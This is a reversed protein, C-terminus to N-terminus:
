KKGRTDSGSVTDSDEIGPGTVTTLPEATVAFFIPDAWSQTAPELDLTAVLKEPHPNPLRPNSTLLQRSLGIFRYDDGIVWGIPTPEDHDTFGPVERQTRIPLVATTGDRYHLRVLAYDRVGEVPTDAWANLLVHFAAIPVQPVRIGIAHLFDGSGSKRLEIGARMDYDVNEVRAIGFMMGMLGPTTSSTMVSLYDGPRNYHATLDLLLPSAAPDRAPIPRGLVIRATPPAPRQEVPPPPGPDTRRLRERESSTPLQLVRQSGVAPNLLEAQERLEKPSHIDAGIRWLSRPPEALLSGGDAAFTLRTPSAYNPTTTTQPPGIPEFTATDYLQTTHGFVHAFLRGDHSLAFVASTEEHPQVPSAKEAVGGPDFIDRDRTALFPKNSVVTVGVPFVGDIHRREGIAGTRANWLSLDVDNAVRDDADRALLWLSDSGPV